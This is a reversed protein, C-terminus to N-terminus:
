GGTYSLDAGFWKVFLDAFAAERGLARVAGDMDSAAQRTLKRSLRVGFDAMNYVTELVLYSDPDEKQMFNAFIEDAIVFDNKKLKLDQFPQVEFDYLRVNFSYRSLLDDCLAEADSNIILGARKGNIDGEGWIDEDAPAKIFVLGYAIFPSTEGAGGIYDHVSQRVSVVCDIDGNDLAAAMDQPKYLKLEPRKGLADALLRAYDAEFGSINRRDDVYTLPRSSESLGITLTREAQSIFSSIVGFLLAVAFGLILLFRFLKKRDVKRRRM